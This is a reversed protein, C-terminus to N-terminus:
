KLDFIMKVKVLNDERKKKIKIGYDIAYLSTNGILQNQNRTFTITIPKSTEKITLDGTVILKDGELLTKTSRFHIKPFDNVDFYKGGRLSWNRLGNNTDLTKSVVSGQFVSNELNDLDIRSTSEFGSFTGKVEKSVFVFSIEANTIEVKQSQIGTSTLLLVFVAFFTTPLKM